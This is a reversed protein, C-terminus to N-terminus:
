HATTKEDFGFELYKNPQCRNDSWMCKENGACLEPANISRCMNEIVDQDDHYGNNLKEMEVLFYGLAWSLGEFVRVPKEM